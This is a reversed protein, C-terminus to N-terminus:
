SSEEAKRRKKQNNLVLLSMIILLGGFIYFPTAGPGGTAPLVYGTYNIIVNDTETWVKETGDPSIETVTIEDYEVVVRYTNNTTVYGQPPSTEVLSYTHGSPIKSFNVIGNENSTAVYKTVQSVSTGDGRCVPCTEPIHRLEFVADELNEGQHNEKRFTFESQYGYVSPKPFYVTKPDSVEQVGDMTVITRYELYADGNTEYPQQEAFQVLENQLRVRYTVNYYYYTTNPDDPDVSTTYGSQKLDWHIIGDEHYATDEAGVAFEGELKDQPRSNKDFFHIFEVIESNDDLVPLPDTATWVTKKTQTNLRRIEEFIENFAATIDAQDVSDYYYGSGVRNGLWNKYANLDNAGGIEYTTSTRDVVSGTSWAADVYKKVTQGAVDVGVSFIKAGSNKIKTAMQRAKISAKDSYSTGEGCYVGLVDDHFVGDKGVTGSSTYPDYGTYDRSSDSNNKLYTTPFGDTLLIIYQNSNGSDALMDYGHKLGGEVNTFRDHSSAYGSAKLKAYTESSMENILSTAQAATSCPQLDFIEHSHTNFAVFGIKSLGSTNEAFQNIFNSAAVVAADYRSKTSEGTFVSNMTNSIDMVIVVAMDPESLFTQVNTKTQVTLTIDFVNELETGDITKTVVVNRDASTVKGGADDVQTDSTGDEIEPLEYDEEVDVAPVYESFTITGYGSAKYGTSLTTPDVSINVTDGVEANLAIAANNEQLTSASGSDAMWVYLVFGKSTTAELARAVSNDTTSGGIYKESVYYRGENSDYEVVIGHWYANPMSGTSIKENANGGYVVVPLIESWGRNVYNFTLPSSTGTTFTSPMNNFFELLELMNGSNTVNKQMDGIAQYHAYAILTDNWVKRIYAEEGDTDDNNYYNDLEEYFEDLAPLKETLYMVFEATERSEPTIYESEEDKQLETATETEKSAETESKDTTLETTAEVTNETTNETVDETTTETTIETINETTNEATNETTSEATVETTTEATTETSSEPEDTVEDGGTVTSEDDKEYCTEGHTHEEMGCNLVEKTEAPTYCSNIHEHTESCILENESILQVYCEESHKHEKMGCYVDTEMTLAPLILMYVTCFVVFASLITVLKRWRKDFRHIKMFQSIKILIGGKM